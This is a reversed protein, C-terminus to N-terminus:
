RVQTSEIVGQYERRGCTAKRGTQSLTTKGFAFFHELLSWKKAGRGSVKLVLLVKRVRTFNIVSRQEGRGYTAKCGTQSLATKGFAYFHELLCRELEVASTQKTSVFIAPM